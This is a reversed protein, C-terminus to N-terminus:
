QPPTGAPGGPPSGCAPHEALWEAAADAVRDTPYPWDTSVCPVAVDPELRIGMPRGTRDRYYGVTVVMNAGDPLRSGRNTTAFGATPAGFSRSNPRGHFAVVMAEGSSGTGEDFLVAVPVETAVPPVVPTRVRSLTDLGGDEGLVGSVGDRYYWDSEEGFSGVMTDGLLPGIGAIMPWMNGGGNARLDVIWGCVGSDALRGVAEHLSDALAQGPGGRGPVRVYGMRGNLEEAVAGPREAQLFSHRNVRGLAWSLAAYTEAFSRAGHALLAASDRVLEWDITDTNLVTAQLTDIAASLFALAEPAAEVAPALRETSTGGSPSTGDGDEVGPVCALFLLVLVPGVPAGMIGSLGKGM